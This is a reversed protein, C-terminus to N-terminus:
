VIRLPAFFPSHKRYTEHYTRADPKAIRLWAPERDAALRAVTAGFAENIHEPKINSM